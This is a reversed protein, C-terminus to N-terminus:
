EGRQQGDSAQMGLETLALLEGRWQPVRARVLGGESGAGEEAERMKARERRRMSRKELTPSVFIAM